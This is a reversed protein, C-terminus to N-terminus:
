QDNKANECLLASKIVDYYKPVVDYDICGGDASRREACAVMVVKGSPEKRLAYIDKVPFMLFTNLPQGEDENILGRRLAEDYALKQEKTEPIYPAEYEVWEPCDHAIVLLPFVVAIISLISKMLWM